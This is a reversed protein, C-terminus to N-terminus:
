EKPPAPLIFSFKSGEGPINSSEVQVEGEIKDIIRKVISLGLGYGNVSGKHFRTFKTFLKQIQEESLGPGNDQIWFKLKKDQTKEWGLSLVPPNGGYKLGNSIYNFWVEEIWPGYGLAVPWQSPMSVQAKTETIMSELRHQAGKVIGSMEVPVKKVDEKRMRALLLLEHMINLTKSGSRSITDTMEIMENAQPDSSEQLQMKLIDCWSIMSGIINQLDHAVSHSFADLDNIIDQKEEIQKELNINLKQLEIESEKIKTINHFILILGNYKKSFDILPIIKLDFYLIQGNGNYNYEIQCNSTLDLNAFEKKLDPFLISFDLGLAKKAKVDLMNCLAPNIDAIFNTSDLVLIGENMTDFLVNRTFPIIKFLKLNIVEFTLIIGIIGFGLLTWDFGPIPNIKFVYMVNGTFPFFSAFFIWIIQSKYVSSFKITSKILIFIAITLLTYLYSLYLWMYWGYHYIAITSGPQIVIKDWLVHHYQNTCAILFTLVPPAYFWCLYKAKLFKTKETFSLVFLFFAVPTFPIGLYTIQSWFLKLDITKCSIEFIEGFGWISIFLNLIALYNASRNKITFLYYGLSFNVIATFLFVFTSIGYEYNSNDFIQFLM